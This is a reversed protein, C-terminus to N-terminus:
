SLLLKRISRLMAERAKLQVDYPTIDSVRCLGESCLANLMNEGDDRSVVNGDDLLALAIIAVQEPLSLDEGSAWHHALSSVGGHIMQRVESRFHEIQEPPATSLFVLLTREDFRRRM